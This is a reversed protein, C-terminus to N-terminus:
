LRLATFGCRMGTMSSMSSIGYAAAGDLSRSNSGLVSVIQMQGTATLWDRLRANWTTNCVFYAKM